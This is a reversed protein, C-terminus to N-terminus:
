GLVRGVSRGEGAEVEPYSVCNISPHVDACPRDEAKDDCVLPLLLIADTTLGM